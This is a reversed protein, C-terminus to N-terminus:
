LQVASLCPESEVRAYMGCYKSVVCSCTYKLYRQFQVHTRAHMGCAILCLIYFCRHKALRFHRCTSNSEAYAQADGNVWEEEKEKEKEKEEEEEEEEEKV